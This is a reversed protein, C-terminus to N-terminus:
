AMSVQSPDVFHVLGRKGNILWDPDEETLQIPLDSPLGVVVESKLTRLTAFPAPMYAAIAELPTDYPWHRDEVLRRYNADGKLVVLSSQALMRHLEAPLESFHLWTTWFPHTQLSLRQVVIHRELREGLSRLSAEGSACLAQCSAHVDKIMADSVFFPQAKLHLYVKEVADSSLLLDILGLDALLEPGSNDAIWDIRPVGRSLLAEIQPRDDILLLEEAQHAAHDAVAITINSLDVRNGWLSSALWLSLRGQWPDGPSQAGYLDALSALGERLAKAKQPEFPDVGQWSGPQFYGVIELVRRYFYAEAFYWDLELWLRGQREAWARLWDAVDPANEMLPAVADHAIEGRFARLAREIPEPYDNTSIMNAIIQPKRELITHEAFSGPESVMLPAPLM